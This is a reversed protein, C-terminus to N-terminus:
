GKYPLDFLIPPNTPKYDHTCTSAQIFTTTGNTTAGYGEHIHGAIRFGPM